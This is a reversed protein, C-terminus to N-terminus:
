SPKKNWKLLYYYCLTTILLFLSLIFLWIPRQERYIAYTFYNTRLEFGILGGILLVNYIIFITKKLGIETTPLGDSNLSIIFRTIFFGLNVITYYLILAFAAMLGDGYLHLSKIYKYYLFSSSIIYFVFWLKNAILILQKKNM